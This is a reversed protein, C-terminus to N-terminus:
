PSITCCTFYLLFTAVNILARVVKGSIIPWARPWGEGGGKMRVGMGDGLRRRRCSQSECSKGSEETESLNCSRSFWM